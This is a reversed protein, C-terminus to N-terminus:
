DCTKRFKVDSRIKKLKPTESMKEEIEKNEKEKTKKWGLYQSTKGMERIQRLTVMWGDRGDREALRQQEAVM